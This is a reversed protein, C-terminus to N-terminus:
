WRIRVLGDGARVGPLGSTAPDSGLLSSGGGGGAAFASGGGFWGGGGGAVHYRGGGGGDGFEGAEAPTSGVIGGASQSGGGAAQWEPLLAVGPGGLALGGPGGAGHDPCGCQGGGGGAAVFIRDELTAGGQRVDSAGGGGGAFEGGLGGGNYGAAGELGGRGGVRIQLAEGPVVDLEARVYAGLGGDDQEPGDCCRSGGGQAGWLEVTIRAVCDPVVFTQAAGSFEFERAGGGPVVRTRDVCRGDCRIQGVECSGECYGSACTGACERGCGGCHRADFQLDVCEAACLDLAEAECARALVEDADAEASADAFTNPVPRLQRADNIEDCGGVVIALMVSM